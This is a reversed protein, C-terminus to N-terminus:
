TGAVKSKESIQPVDTAGSIPHDPPTIVLRNFFNADLISDPHTSYPSTPTSQSLPKVDEALSSFDTQSPAFDWRVSPAYGPSVPGMRREQRQELPPLGTLLPKILSHKRKARDFFKEHFLLERSSPRLGASKVLCRDVFNKFTKSYEHAGGIPHRDLTPSPDEVTKLLVRSPAILSHPAKGNALELATIGFSWQCPRVCGVPCFHLISILSRINPAHFSFDTSSSFYSVIDARDNYSQGQVVEPAMFLVTGVFSQRRGRNPQLSYRPPPGITPTSTPTHDTVVPDVSVGFDALLVTGDDDVLLNAAKIDRHLWGNSHLYQLGALAQILVTAIVPEDLGGPFRYAMIDAVSGARMLRVGIYLKSGQIWEGRVRLINPHKALSMLQTERRLYEVEKESLRDLDIVKVACLEGLPKFRALRVVSSAGFGIPEAVDYDSMQNSYMPWRDTVAGLVKRRHANLDDVRGETSPETTSPTTNNSLGDTLSASFVWLKQGTHSILRSFRKRTRGPLQPTHTPSSM